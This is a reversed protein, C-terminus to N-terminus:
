TWGSRGRRRRHQIEKRKTQETTRSCGCQMCGVVRGARAITNVTAKRDADGTRVLYKGRLRAVSRVGREESGGSEPFTASEEREREMEKVGVLDMAM